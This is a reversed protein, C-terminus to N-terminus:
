FSACPEKSSIPSIVEGLAMSVRQEDGMEFAVAPGLIGM